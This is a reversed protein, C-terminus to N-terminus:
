KTKPLYVTIPLKVSATKGSLKDTAKLEVEFEGDRNMPLLFRLPVGSEKEDIGSNITVVTPKAVTPKGNAMAQMEVTLNPQKKAKDREFGVLAFHVWVSQGAVGVTPAPLEGKEDSSTYLAVVGFSKPLVTFQKDLSKSAKSGNDTVTVKCTYTGPEQDLGITVFARAPLKTGGLPLYDTRPAPKQEFISKGSKDTVVMGMSYDVKGDAGVAIGEIDFAIFLVDGPLLKADPRPSGLEGYTIRDNSLTMGGAQAPALGLGAAIVLTTLM